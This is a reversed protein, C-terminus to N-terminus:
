SSKPKESGDSSGWPKFWSTFSSKMSNMAEAQQQEQMDQADKLWQAGNERIQAEMMEYHKQGRERVIDQLMKGQAFAESRSVEGPAPQMMSM